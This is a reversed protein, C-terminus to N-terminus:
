KCCIACPPFHYASVLSGGYQSGSVIHVRLKSGPDEWGIGTESNGPIQEALSAEDLCFPTVPAGPVGNNAVIMNLAGFALRGKSVLVFDEGCSDAGMATYCVGGAGLGAHTHLADAEGGGTLTTVMSATLEDNAGPGLDISGANIQTDGGAIAISKPVIDLGASDAPHHANPDGSHAAFVQLHDDCDWFAGNWVAIANPLCSMTALTDGDGPVEGPELEALLAPLDEPTVCLEPLVASTVYESAALGGLNDAGSARLAYPTSVVAQRPEMEGASNVEVSLWTGSDLLDGTVPTEVGLVVQFAGMVVPVAEHIEEWLPDGAELDGYLRFTLDLMGDPCTMADPCHIPDGVANTLVGQYHVQEPVAGAASAMPMLLVAALASVLLAKRM